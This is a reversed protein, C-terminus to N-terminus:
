WRYSHVCIELQPIPAPAYVMQLHRQWLGTTANEESVRFRVKQGLQHREQHPPKESNLSSGEKELERGHTCTRDQKSGWWGGGGM